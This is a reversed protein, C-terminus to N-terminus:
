QWGNANRYNKNNQLVDVKAGLLEATKVAPIMMEGQKPIVYSDM